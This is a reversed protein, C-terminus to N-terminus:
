DFDVACYWVVHVLKENKGHDAAEAVDGRLSEARIM